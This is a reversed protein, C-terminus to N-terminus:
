RGSMISEDSNLSPPKRQKGLRLRLWDPAKGSSVLRWQLLGSLPFGTEQESAYNERRSKKSKPTINLSSQEGKTKSFSFFCKISHLGTKLGFYEVAIVRLHFDSRPIKPARMITPPAFDSCRATTLYETAPMAVIFGLIRHIDIRKITM